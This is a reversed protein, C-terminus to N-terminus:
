EQPMETYTDLDDPLTIDSLQNISSIDVHFSGDIEHVGTGGEAPITLAADIDVYLKNIFGDADVGLTISAETIAIVSSLSALIAARLEGIQESTMTSTDIEGADEMVLIYVSVVDDMTVDYVVTLEGNTETATINEITNIYPLITNLDVPLVIPEDPDVDLATALNGVHAKLTLVSPVEGGMLTLFESADTLDAYVWGGSLYATASGQTDVVTVANEEVLVDASAEVIGVANDEFINNIKLHVEGSADVHMEDTLVSESDYIKGLYDFDATVDVAFSNIDSTTTQEVADLVRENAVADEISITGGDCSTTAALAIMATFSLILKNFKNM